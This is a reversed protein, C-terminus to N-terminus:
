VYQTTWDPGWADIWFGQFSVNSKAAGGRWLDFEPV